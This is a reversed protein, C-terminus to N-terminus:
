EGRLIQVPDVLTARHAPVYSALAAIAILGLSVLVYIMPDFPSTGFLLAAMLRTLLAAGVLGCIVGVLALAVGHGVFMVELERRPAGLATRIGIERTRQWVAYAIVGYIGVIGLLLAMAGAIALMVLAFSTGAMSGNYLDALTSVRSIPVNPNVAWIANRVEALLSEMGTRDSRIAFTVSRQVNSRNGYFQGMLSPWYVITPAPQHVGNDYIDGVVGIVERWPSGATERIRRGIASHPERWLERALNESILAVPRHDEVDTSTFDRGAVLPTGITHFFGPAVFRFWRIVQPGTGETAAHDESFIVSRGLPGSMPVRGAFSADSIGALAAIRDRMESQMRYVREPDAVQAQPITVRVLQVHHPDTFGPHVARLAVFTRVMLGSAILLILALAVQVVVLTNRTRHRERGDSSTRGNNRLTPLIQVNSHKAIPICGFLLASFVSLILTFALVTPDLAIEHLRPLNAPGLRALTQLGLYALGLGLGGGVLGLALSELLMERALRGRRAGIAARIAVEHQRSEARVLLLNAVNACAVLLVIGITGMLVWLTRSVDGVLHQKLPRLAPTARANEFVARDLGPFSPWSNLWIPLMRAVDANAQELTATPALRALGQYNFRGLTLESLEFRLPLILEPAENLFRFGEPLVGVVTRPRSDITLQRGVISPDGGHRRQWYGFMLIATEPSGPIHEDPAFWRGLVPQVGLAPLTGHSVLLSEVEEPETGTVGATGRLWVGLHQFTQNENTYTALLAPSMGWRTGGSSLGPATHELSVLAEADPYPLPKILVGNVVSFIATTAGIGLALTLTATLTFGPTRRLARIGHRFDGLSDQFRAPRFEDRTREKFREVGGFSILAQRRAEEPTMGARVNKDIQREIHFRIEEDLGRELADVRTISRLRRWGERIWSM